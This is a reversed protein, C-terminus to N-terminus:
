QRVEDYIEKWQNARKSYTYEKAADISNTQRLKFRADNKWKYLIEFGNAMIQTENYPYLLGCDWAGILSAQSPIEASAVIPLGMSLYELLKMPYSVVYSILPPMPSTAIDACSLFRPTEEYPQYDTYIVSSTIGLKNIRKDLITKFHAQTGGVLLLKSKPNKKNFRTFGKLLELTGRYPTMSGSYVIVFDDEKIGLKEREKQKNYKKPNFVKPNVSSGIVGLKEEPVNYREQVLYKLTPTLSIIKDTNEFADSTCWKEAMCIPRCYNLFNPDHKQMEAVQQVHLARLDFVSPKDTKIFPIPNNEFHLIDADIRKLVENTKNRAKNIYITYWLENIRNQPPHYNPIDRILKINNVTETKPLAEEELCHLEVENGEDQLARTIEYLYTEGIFGYKAFNLSVGAIIAIKM